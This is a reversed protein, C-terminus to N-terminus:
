LGPIAVTPTDGTIAVITIAIVAGVAVLPPVGVMTFMLMFGLLVIVIIITRRPWPFWGPQSPPPVVIQL